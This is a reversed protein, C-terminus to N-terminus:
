RVPRAVPPDDPDTGQAIGVDAPTLALRTVKTM